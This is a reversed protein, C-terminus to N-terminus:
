KVGTSGFGGTGRDTEDLSDVTVFVVTPVEKVVAQALRDGPKIEFTYRGLNSLILGIEGRYGSDITGPANTIFLGKKLSLGSRSRIQLEYGPPVQVKLGTKVFGNKGPEITASESSRIDFCADGARAYELPGWSELDYTDLYKVKLEISKGPAACKCNEVM